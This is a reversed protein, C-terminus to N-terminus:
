GGKLMVSGMVVKPFVFENTRVGKAIEEKTFIQPDEDRRLKVSDLVQTIQKFTVENDSFLTLKDTEPQGKRIVVMRKHLEALGVDTLDFVLKSENAPPQSFSTVVEVKKDKLIEVNVNFVRTEKSPPAANSLFPIQVEIVGLALFVASYLLFTNLLSFIDIFPMINLQVDAYAQGVKRKKRRGSM